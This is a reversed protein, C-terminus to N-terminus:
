LQFAIGALLPFPVEPSPGVAKRTEGFEMEHLLRSIELLVPDDTEYPIPFRRYGFREAFYPVNGGPLPQGALGKELDGLFAEEAFFPNSSALIIVKFTDLPFTRDWLRCYSVGGEVDERGALFASLFDEMPGSYGFTMTFGLGFRGKAGPLFMSDRLMTGVNGSSLSSLCFFESGLGMSLAAIRRLAPSHHGNVSVPGYDVGLPLWSAVEMEVNTNWYPLSTM